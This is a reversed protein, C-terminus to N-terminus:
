AKEAIYEKLAKTIGEFAIQEFPIDEAKFFEVSEADDSPTITVNEPLMGIFVSCITYAKIGGFVYRDYFSTFYTMKPIEIGLEEKIERHMSEEITENLDIFGGPLDYFGKQPDDKRKVLLIENNKNKLIIANCGKPNIYYHLGCSSCLLSNHTQKKLNGGCKPCFTFDYESIMEITYCNLIIPM